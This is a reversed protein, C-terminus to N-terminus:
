EFVEFLEGTGVLHHVIQKVTDPRLDTVLLMNRSWFYKGGLCEGSHSHRDVLVQINRFTFLTAWYRDGNSFHVEVDSNDDYYLTGGIVPGRTESEIVINEIELAM